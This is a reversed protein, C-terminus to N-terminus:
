EKRHRRRKPRILRKPPGLHVDYVIALVRVTLTVLAGSIAAMWVSGTWQTLLAYTVAGLIAATAYLQGKTIMPRTDTLVDRMVGGGTASIVGMVVTPVPHINVDMALNCGVVTFASLGLADFWILAKPTIKKGYFLFFTAMAAGMSIVLELPERAWWVQRNLLVDRVTGGGLATITGILMFGVLDMNRRGAALAGSVAFVIDGFCILWKIIASVMEDEPFM